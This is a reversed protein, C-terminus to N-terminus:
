TLSTEELYVNTNLRRGIDTYGTMFGDRAVPWGFALKELLARSISGNSLVNWVTMNLEAVIM